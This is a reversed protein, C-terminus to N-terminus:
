ARRRDELLDAVLGSRDLLEDLTFAVERPDWLDVEPHATRAIEVADKYLDTLPMRARMSPAFRRKVASLIAHVERRWHRAPDDHPYAQLRLLHIMAQLLLSEVANLEAQGVTEVEDIVNDWDVDANVRECIRVCAPVLTNDVALLM